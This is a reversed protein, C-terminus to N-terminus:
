FCSGFCVSHGSFSSLINAATSNFRLMSSIDLNNVHQFYYLKHHHNKQLSSTKIFMGKTAHYHGLQRKSALKIDSFILM